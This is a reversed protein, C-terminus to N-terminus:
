TAPAYVITKNRGASKAQYLASDAFRILDSQNATPSQGLDAVGASITLHFYRNEGPLYFRERAVNQRIDEAVRRADEGTTRPLIIVFEEGGYRALFDTERLRQRFINSLQMLTADGSAHGYTDNVQKFHDIDIM